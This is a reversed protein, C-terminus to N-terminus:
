AYMTDIKIIPDYDPQLNIDVVHAKLALRKLVFRIANM